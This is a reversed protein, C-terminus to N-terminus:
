EPAKFRAPLKAYAEPDAPTENAQFGLAAIAKEVDPLGLQDGDYNIHGMHSEVEVNVSLIGETTMLGTEIREKCLECLVTPLNVMAMAHAQDAAMEMQGEHATMDMGAEHGAGMSTEGAPMQEGSAMEHQQDMKAQQKESKADGGCAGATFAIGAILLAITMKM